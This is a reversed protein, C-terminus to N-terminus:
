GTLSQWATADFLSEPPERERRHSCLPPRAACARRPSSSALASGAAERRCKDPIATTRTRSLAASTARGYRDAGVVSPARESPSCLPLKCASRRKLRAHAKKFAILGAALDMLALHNEAEQVPPDTSRPQAVDLLSLGGCGLVPRALDPRPGQERARPRAHLANSKSHSHSPRERPRSTILRPSCASPAQPPTQPQLLSRHVLCRCRASVAIRRRWRLVRSTISIPTGGSRLVVDTRDSVSRHAATRSSQRSRAPAV